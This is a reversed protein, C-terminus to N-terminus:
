CRRICFYRTHFRMHGPTLEFNSNPTVWLRHDADDEERQRSFIKWNSTSPQPRFFIYSFINLLSFLSNYHTTKTTKTLSNSKVHKRSFSFCYNSRPSLQKVKKNNITMDSFNGTKTITKLVFCKAFLPKTSVGVFLPLLQCTRM